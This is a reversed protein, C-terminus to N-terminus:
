NEEKAKKKAEKKEAQSKSCFNAKPMKARSDKPEYHKGVWIPTAAKVVIKLHSM